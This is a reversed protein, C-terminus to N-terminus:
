LIQVQDRRIWWRREQRVVRFWSESAYDVELLTGRPVQEIVRAALDPRSFLNASDETVAVRFTRVPAPTKPLDLIKDRLGSFYVGATIALLLCSFM